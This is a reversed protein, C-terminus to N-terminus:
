FNDKVQEYSYGEEYDAISLADLLNDEEALGGLITDTLAVGDCTYINSFTIKSDLSRMSVGALMEKMDIEMFCAILEKGEFPLHDVPAAIIVKKDKSNLNKISIEPKSLEHYDFSYEGINMQTGKSTYIVGETDVFAFRELKFLSKMEAQYAKLHEADSLDEESMLELAAQMDDIRGQLNDAVVQERRGALEVLYLLSVARAAEESDERASKGIWITGLLLVLMIAVIGIIAIVSTKNKRKNDM